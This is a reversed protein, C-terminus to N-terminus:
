SKNRKLPHSIKLCVMLILGEQRGIMIDIIRGGSGQRRLLVEIHQGRQIQYM